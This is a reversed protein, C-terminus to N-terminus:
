GWTHFQAARERVYRAVLKDLDDSDAHEVDTGDQLEAFGDNGPKDEVSGTGTAPGDIGAQHRVDETSADVLEDDFEEAQSEAESDAQYYYRQTRAVERIKQRSPRALMRDGLFHAVIGQEALTMSSELDVLQRLFDEANSLHPATDEFLWEIDPAIEESKNIYEQIPRGLIM